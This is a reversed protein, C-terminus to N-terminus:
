AKGEEPSVPWRLRAGAPLLLELAEGTEPLRGIILRSTNPLGEVRCGLWQEDGDMVTTVAVTHLEVADGNCMATLLDPEEAKPQQRELVALGEALASRLVDQVTVRAPVVTSDSLAQALTSLRTKLDTTLRLTMMEDYTM